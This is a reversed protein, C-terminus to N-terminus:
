VSHKMPLYTQTLVQSLATPYIPCKDKSQHLPLLFSEYACTIGDKQRGIDQIPNHRSNHRPWRQPPRQGIFGSSDEYYSYEPGRLLLIATRMTPPSICTLTSYPSSVPKGWLCIVPFSMSEHMFGKGHFISQPM